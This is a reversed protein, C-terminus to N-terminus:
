ECSHLRCNVSYSSKARSPAWARRSCLSICATRSHTSSDSKISELTNKRISSHGWESVLFRTSRYTWSGKMCLRIHSLGTRQLRIRFSPSPTRWPVRSRVFRRLAPCGSFSFIGRSDIFPRTNRNFVSPRIIEDSSLYNKECFPAEWKWAFRTCVRLCRRPHFSHPIGARLMFDRM